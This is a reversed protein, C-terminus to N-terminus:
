RQKLQQPAYRQQLLQTNLNAQQQKPGAARSISSSTGMYCQQQQQLHVLQGGAYKGAPEEGTSSSSSTDTGTSQVQTAEQIASGLKAEAV